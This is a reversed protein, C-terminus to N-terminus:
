EVSARSDCRSLSNSVPLPWDRPNTVKLIDLRIVGPKRIGDGPDRL